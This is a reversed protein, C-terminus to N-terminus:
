DIFDAGATTFLIEPWPIGVADQPGFEVGVSIGVLQVSIIRVNAVM